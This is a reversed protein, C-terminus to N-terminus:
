ESVPQQEIREQLAQIVKKRDADSITRDLLQASVDHPLVREAVDLLEGKQTESLNMDWSAVWQEAFEILQKEVEDMHPIDCGDWTLVMEKTVSGSEAGETTGYRTEVGLLGVGLEEARANWLAQKLTGDREIMM